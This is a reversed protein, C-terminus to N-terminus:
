PGPAGEITDIVQQLARLYAAEWTTRTAEAADYIFKHPEIGRAAWGFHIVGAYPVAARGARVVAAGAQGSGRVSAALRGSRHPALAAARSSVLEAVEAHAKKLDTLEVGAAKLTRRLTRAGQVEV